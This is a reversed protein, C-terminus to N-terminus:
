DMRGKPKDCLRLCDRIIKELTEREKPTRQSIMKSINKIHPDESSEYLLSDCTVHLAKAVACLSSLSLVRAGAEVHALFAKSLGTREALQERTLGELKRFYSIRKGIAAFLESKEM